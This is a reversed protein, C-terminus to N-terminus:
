QVVQVGGKPRVSTAAAQPVDPANNFTKALVINQSKPIAGGIIRSVDGDSVALVAVAPSGATSSASNILAQQVINGGGSFLSKGTSDKVDVVVANAAVQVWGIGPTQANGESPIWWADVTDGPRLYGGVCRALDVNVAVIQRDRVLSADTLRGIEIQDGQYLPSTAMKGVADAPSEITGPQRGGKVLQEIMIDGPQLVTYPGVNRSMVPVAETAVHTSTYRMLRTAALLAVIIGLVVAAM